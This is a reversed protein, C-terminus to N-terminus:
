VGGREGSSVFWVLGLERELELEQESEEDPALRTSNDALRKVVRVGRTLDEETGATIDDDCAVGMSDDVADSARGGGVEGKGYLVLCAAFTGVAINSALDSPTPAGLVVALTTSALDVDAPSKAKPWALSRSKILFYWPVATQAAKLDYSM